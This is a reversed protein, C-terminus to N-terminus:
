ASLVRGLVAGLRGAAGLPAGLSTIVFARAGVGLRVVHLDWPDIRPKPSASGHRSCVREREGDDRANIVKSGVEALTALDGDGVGGLLKGDDDSVVAARMGLETANRALFIRIASAPDNSRLERRDGQM